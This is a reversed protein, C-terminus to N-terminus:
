CGAWLCVACGPLLRHSRTSSQSGQPKATATAVTAATAATAATARRPRRCSRPSGAPSRGAFAASSSSWRSARCALTSSRLSAAAPATSGGACTTGTEFTTCAGALARRAWSTLLPHSRLPLSAGHARRGIAYEYHMLKELLAAPTATWTLRTLRLLGADFWVSMLKRLSSDLVRWHEREAAAMATVETDSAQSAPAAAALVSRGDMAALLDARMGVLFPLGGEQQALRELVRQKTPTLVERLAERAKLELVEGRGEDAATLLARCGDRVAAEDVGQRALISLFGLRGDPGFDRYSEQLESCLKASLVDDGRPSRAVRLMLDRLRLRDDPPIRAASRLLSRLRM